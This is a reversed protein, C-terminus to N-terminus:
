KIPKGQKYQAIDKEDKVELDRVGALSEIHHTLEHRLVKRLAQKQHQVSTGACIKAFSGYYISIYRGLGTPEYHYTGMIYLDNNQSYPSPLTDQLLIIGGNLGKYLEAPIETAFNNLVDWVEDMSLLTNNTQM